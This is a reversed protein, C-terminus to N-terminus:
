RDGGRAAVLAERQRRATRIAPPEAGPDLEPVVSHPRRHVGIGRMAPNLSYVFAILRAVAVYVAVPIQQDIDCTAHLYRALPPDEVVPVAHVTAEEKIRLALSDVGKAVVRPAGGRSPDYQLAVAFHTPNTVVVDATKVAALVRSRAIAYQQRRLRSKVIPDGEQQKREDRVEQKTMKLQQNLKHRHYGYDALGLALGTSAVIRVFVVLSSAVYSLVPGLTAPSKAGVTMAITHLSYYAIVALLGLKVVQKLLEWLTQSSFLRKIGTKPSIRTFRPRAAKVSAARGVQAVSVLLGIALFASGAIAAYEVFQVLGRELVTLAGPVSPHQMVSVAGTTVGFVRNRALSFLWPLLLTAALVALWGSIEPSRAVRGEERAEKRRKPTPPETRAYRDGAPM